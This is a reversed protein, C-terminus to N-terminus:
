LAPKRGKLRTVKTAMKLRPLNEREQHLLFPDALQVEQQYKGLPRRRNIVPVLYRPSVQSEVNRKNIKRQGRRPSRHALYGHRGMSRQSVPSGVDRKNIKRQDRRPSRHALYVHRGMSRQSVPSGVERKNTKRQGRRLNQHTPHAAKGMSRLQLHDEDPVLSGEDFKMRQFFSSYLYLSVRRYTLLIPLSAIFLSLGKGEDRRM